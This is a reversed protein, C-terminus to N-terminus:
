WSGLWEDGCYLEGGLSGATDNILQEARNQADLHDDALFTATITDAPKILTQASMEIKVQYLNGGSM